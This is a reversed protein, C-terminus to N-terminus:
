DLCPSGHCGRLSGCGAVLIRDIPPGALGHPGIGTDPRRYDYALGIMGSKTGIAKLKELRISSWELM